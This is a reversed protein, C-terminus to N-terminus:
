KTELLEPNEHINGIIEITFDAKITCCWGERAMPYRKSMDVCWSNSYFKIEGVEGFLSDKKAHAKVIDGEYIEHGKSDKLGTYQEIICADQLILELNDVEIARLSPPFYHGQIDLQMVTLYIEKGTDWARFKIERMKLTRM